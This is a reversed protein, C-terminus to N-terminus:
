EGQSPVVVRHQGDERVARRAVLACGRPGLLDKRERGEWARRQGRKGEDGGRWPHERELRAANVVRRAYM